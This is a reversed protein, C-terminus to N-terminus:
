SVRLNLKIRTTSTSTSSYNKYNLAVELTGTALGQVVTVDKAVTFTTDPSLTFTWRMYGVTSGTSDIIHFNPLNPM